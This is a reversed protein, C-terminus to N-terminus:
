RAGGGRRLQRGDGLCRKWAEVDRVPDSEKSGGSCGIVDQAAPVAFHRADHLRRIDLRPKEALASAENRHRGLLEASEHSRLDRLPGRYDLRRSRTDILTPGRSVSWGVLFSRTSPPQAARAMPTSPM